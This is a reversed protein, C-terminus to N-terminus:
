EVILRFYQTSQFNQDQITNCQGPANVNICAIVYFVYTGALTGEKPPTITIPFDLVQNFGAKLPTRFEIDNIWGATTPDTPIVNVVFMHELSDPEKNVVGAVMKLSQGREITWEQPYIAFRQNTQSFVDRIKQSGEKLLDTSLSSISGMFDSVWTVALSLFVVAFIVAIILGLSMQIAAKRAM